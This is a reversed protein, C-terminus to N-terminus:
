VSIESGKGVYMKKIFIHPNEIETNKIKNYKLIQIEWFRELTIIYITNKHTYTMTKIYHFKCIFITLETCSLIDSHREPPENIKQQM